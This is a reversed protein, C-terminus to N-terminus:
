SVTKGGGTALSIGVRKQGSKIASVVSQICELQYDRLKVPQQASHTAYSRLCATPPGRGRVFNHRLALTSSQPRSNGLTCSIARSSRLLPQRMATSLRTPQNVNLFPQSASSRWKQPSARWVEAELLRWGATIHCMHKSISPVNAVYLVQGDCRKGAWWPPCGQSLCKFIM